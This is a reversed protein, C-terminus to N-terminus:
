IGRLVWFLCLLSIALLGGLVIFRNWGSSTSCVIKEPDDSQQELITLLAPM